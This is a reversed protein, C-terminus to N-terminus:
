VVLSWVVVVVVLSLFLDWQKLPEFKAAMIDCVQKAKKLGTYCRTVFSHKVCTTPNLM